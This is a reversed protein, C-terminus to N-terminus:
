DDEDLQAYVRLFEIDDLDGPKPQARLQKLAILDASTPVRVTWGQPDSLVTARSFLDDFDLHRGDPTSMGRVFFCDVKDLPATAVVIPRKLDGPSASLELEFVQELHDLVAVRSSPHFWFDYDYTLRPSGYMRVAHGGILLYRHGNDDLWRVFAEPDFEAGYRM